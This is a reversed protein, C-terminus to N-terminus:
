EWLNTLKTDYLPQYNIVLKNYKSPHKAYDVPEYLGSKAAEYLLWKFCEWFDTGHGWGRYNAIHSLEHLMVFMLIQHNIIVYPSSNDRVCIYLKRGKGLTYSTSGGTPDSEYIVEPNYNDLLHEVMNYIDNPKNLMEAYVKKNKSIIDDTADIYYKAKLHRLFAIIDTNLRTMAEAAQNYNSYKKLVKWQINNKYVTIYKEQDHYYYLFIIIVVMVIILADM